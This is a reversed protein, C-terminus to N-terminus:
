KSKSCYLEAAIRRQVRSTNTIGKLAMQLRRWNSYATIDAFSRSPLPSNAGDELSLVLVRGVDEDAADEDNEDRCSLVPSWDTIEDLPM